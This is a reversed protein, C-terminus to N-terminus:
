DPNYGKKKKKRILRYFLFGVGVWLLINLIVLMVAQPEIAFFIEM